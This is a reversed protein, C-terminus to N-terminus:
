AKTTLPHELELANVELSAKPLALVVRMFRGPASDLTLSGGIIAMMTSHLALGSGSGGNGSEGNTLGVGDDEIQVQFGDGISIQVHLNLARQDSGSTSSGRGHRAANRMAERAAYYLVEMSLPPLQQAAVEVEPTIDWTVSDFAHHLESETVRKLAALLGIQGLEPAAKATMDRLVNSIQRHSDALVELAAVSDPDQHTSLSLMAAHLRPLIEDHLLRRVRGDIVQSEAMRQRQLVMLRRSLEASAQTDILREASARAIEIEERAYLGRNRKDGLLLLGILGRESWLPIAWRAGAYKEPNLALAHATPRHALEILDHLPPMPAELSYALPPGVLAALPGVAALYGVKAGLVEECLAKFPVSIDLDTPTADTLLRDFLRESVIFPRLQQIYREREIYSTHSFLAYFVTTLIAMLLLSYVANLRVLEAASMIMGFCVALIVMNRWHRMFRQQPLSKGTFVEYRVIAQGLCLVAVMVLLSVVLDFYAISYIVDYADYGLMPNVHLMAWFVLAGAALVSVLLLAGTTGILWPRARARALDGMLHRSPAPKRLADLALVINLLTSIPYAVMLLPVGFLTPTQSFKLAVVQAYTPVPNAVILTLALWATVLISVSFWVRQRRRLDSQVGDWYGAYLLVAVYWGFPLVMVALMGIQWWFDLRADFSALGFGLIATHSVFFIGGILLGVSTIWIGWSRKEANLFITLGLWLQLLTNILSVALIAWLIIEDV